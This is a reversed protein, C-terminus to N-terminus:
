RVLQSNPQSTSAPGLCTACTSGPSKSRMVSSQCFSANVHCSTCPCCSEPTSCADPALAATHVHAKALPPRTARLAASHEHLLLARARHRCTHHAAQLNSSTCHNYLIRTVRKVPVAPTQSPQTQSCCATSTLSVQHLPAHRIKYSVSGSTKHCACGLSKNSAQV